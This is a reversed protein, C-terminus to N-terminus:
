LKLVQGYEPDALEDVLDHDHSAVMMAAGDMLLETLLATLEAWTRADQGFTPEDLVLLSPATALVTAVSLRRQEGGSLTFPNARALELLRLRHLLEDTRESVQRRGPKDHGTIRAPGVALEAAVTSAVFQHQPDQFVTGIRSVLQSARWDIPHPGAGRELAPGAVLTGADPKILGAVTLALTSKGAGNPGVVCLARGAAITFDLDEAAPRAPPPPGPRRVALREATLLPATPQFSRTSRASRGVRLGPVWVGAAALAQAQEAFVQEPPGDARVGGGPELVVVRDILPLWPEVRHEVLLCGAGTQALVAAVSERVRDAGEPDLMATPEDLLLLGPRLALVGALALRQREGGSLAATSHERPYPFGVERLAQEVRPWIQEFPVAHNELGFAVDDGCRALVTQAQPDQLLLGTRPRGSRVAQVRAGRALEGDLLLEGEEDGGSEQPDLLGALGALLTSKGAGSPGLLMVREGPEIRLDLGRVAWAKRTGHRWGWDRAHVAAGPGVEARSV